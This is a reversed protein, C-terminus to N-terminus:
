FGWYLHLEVRRSGLSNTGLGYDGALAPSVGFHPSGLNGVPLSFNSRNLLNQVQVELVLRHGEAPLVLTRSAQLHVAFFNPGEGYNRGIRPTGPMPDLDFTGFATQVAGPTGPEALSPRDLYLGDGNSDRGTTINFPLGSRWVVVPSFNFLGPVTFWGGWYITHRADDAARGYEGSLDYSSAPFAGPGTTDSLKKGWVYTLYHTFRESSYHVLNLAVQHRNSRGSSEYRHVEGVSPDPRGPAPVQVGTGSPEIPLPANVNRSRLLHQLRSLAATVDMSWTPTIRTELGLSVQMTYPTRISDELGVTTVPVASEALDAASPVTPFLDLLLPDTVVFRRQVSGTYRRADLFLPAQVREYFVGGGGRIVFRTDSPNQGPAWAIGVRPAADVRAGLGNQAELRLGTSMTLSPHLQWDDLMFLAGEYRTVSTEPEGAAIVLQSPGGGLDRIEAAGIGQGALVLTRRYSEINSIATTGPDGIPIGNEDIVPAVRGSFTFTGGFNFESRDGLGIRRLEGGAKLSHNGAIWLVHDTVDWRKRGFGSLGEESGGSVFAEPVRITPGPNQPTREQNNRVHQVRIEHVLGPGLRSTATLQFTHDRTRTTAAVSPLSFAGVGENASREVAYEYRAVVTHRGTVDFDLRTSFTHGRRPAGISGIRSVPRFEHDLVTANIFANDDVESREYDAFFTAGGPVIPGSLSAGYLRSQFNPRTDLFPNTSNLSEDNFISYVGGHFEGTGPETLVEIRSMGPQGFQASFPDQIVRIERIADRSPLRNSAFGNVTIQAGGPADSVPALIRLLAPLGGPVDPLAALAESDLIMTAATNPAIIAPAPATVTIERVDPLIALQVDLTTERGAVIEVADRYVRFGPSSVRVDVAGPDVDTLEFAGEGDAEVTREVDDPTTVTVTAGGVLAGLPDLVRGSLTGRVTQAELTPGFFVSSGALALSCAV